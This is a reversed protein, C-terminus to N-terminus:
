YTGVAATGVGSHPAQRLSAKLQWTQLQPSEQAFSRLIAQQWCKSLIGQRSPQPAAVPAAVVGAPVAPVALVVAPAAVPVAVLVVVPGALVVVLVVVLVAVLVAVLVVVPLEVPAAPVAAPATVPAVVAVDVEEFSGIPSVSEVKDLWEVVHHM